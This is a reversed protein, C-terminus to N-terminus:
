WHFSFAFVLALFGLPTSIVLALTSPSRIGLKGRSLGVCGLCFATLAATGAIGLPIAIGIDTASGMAQGASVVLPIWGVLAIGLVAFPLAILGYTPSEDRRKEV